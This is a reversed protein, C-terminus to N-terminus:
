ETTFRFDCRDCGAALIKGRRLKGGWMRALAFDLNCWSEVCLDTTKKAKFYDAVPCRLMDLSVGDAAPLREFVYGPPTFPFRLFLNIATRMRKAPDRTFVKAIFFVSVGWQRYLKWTVDALLEIAYNREIGRELLIQFGSLTLCALLVTIRSGLTRERPVDPALRKYRKWMQKLFDNTESRTFRGCEPHRRNKLRGVLVARAARNIVPSYIKLWIPNMFNENALSVFFINKERKRDEYNTM